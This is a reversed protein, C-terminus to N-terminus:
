SIGEVVALAKRLEEAGYAGAHVQSQGFSELKEIAENLTDKNGGRLRSAVARLEDLVPDIGDEDPYQSMAETINGHISALANLDEEVALLQEMRDEPLRGHQSYAERNTMNSNIIM